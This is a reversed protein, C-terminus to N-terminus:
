IPRDAHVSLSVARGLTDLGPHLNGTSAPVTM